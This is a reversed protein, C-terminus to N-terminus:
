SGAMALARLLGRHRRHRAFARVLSGVAAILLTAAIAGAAIQKPDLVALSRSRKTPYKVRAEPAPPGPLARENTSGALLDVHVSVAFILAEATIRLEGWATTVDLVGGPSVSAPMKLPYSLTKKFDWLLEAHRTDLAQNLHSVVTGELLSPVAAIDLTEFKISFRLVTTDNRREVTPALMVTASPVDVPVHIGLVSWRLNAGFTVRLGQDAVLMIAQPRELRLEGDEGLKVSTPTLQELVHALDGEALIAELWMAGGEGSEALRM